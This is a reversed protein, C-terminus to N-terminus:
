TYASVDNVLIAKHTYGDSSSRYIDFSVENDLLNDQEISPNFAQMIAYPIRWELSNSLATAGIVAGTHKISLALQTANRMIDLWIPNEYAQKIKGAGKLAKLHNKAPFRNVVNLGNAAHREEMENELSLEFEEISAASAAIALTPTTSLKAVSGGIWSLEKGVTYSPTQPALVILDGVALATQLNTVPIVTESALTGITHTYVGASPFALFAGTSPRFVKITDGTALGTTQDVPISIAGSAANVVATVRAHKFEARAMMQLEATIINDDFGVSNLASFRVGTFRIAENELGIEVTFTPLSTQPAKFEHGYVTADYTGVTATKGSSSGTITEGIVLAGVTSCILYDLENSCAVVVATKGSAGTVTEGVTFAGNASSIPIYTGSLIAGYVGKLFYGIKKPEIQIGLVGQPAAILDKIPNVKDSRNGIVPVSPKSLYKTVIDLKTFGFFQDPKVATNETTELKLAAYCIRSYASM